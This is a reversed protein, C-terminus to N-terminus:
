FLVNPSFNLDNTPTSVFGPVPLNNIDFKLDEGLTSLDITATLRQGLLSSCLGVCGVAIVLFRNLM